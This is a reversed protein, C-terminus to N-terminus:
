TYRGAVRYSFHFVVVSPLAVLLKLRMGAGLMRLSFALNKSQRNHSLRARLIFALKMSAHHPSSRGRASRVSAM